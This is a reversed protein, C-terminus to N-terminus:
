NETRRRRFAEKRQRQSCTRFSRNQRRRGHNRCPPWRSRGPDPYRNGGKEASHSQDIEKQLEEDSQREGDKYYELFEVKFLTDKFYYNKIFKKEEKVEGNGKLRRSYSEATMTMDTVEARTISDRAVAGAIVENIDLNAEQAAAPGVLCILVVVCLLTRMM